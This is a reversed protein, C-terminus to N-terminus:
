ANLEREFVSDVAYVHMWDFYTASAAYPAVPTLCVSLCVSLGVLVLGPLSWSVVLGSLSLCVSWSLVLVLCPCVSETAM